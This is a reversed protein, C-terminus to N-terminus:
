VKGMNTQKKKKIVFLIHHRVTFFRKSKHESNPHKMFVRCYFFALMALKMTARGNFIILDLLTHLM